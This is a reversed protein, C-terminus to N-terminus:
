EKKTYKSYYLSLNPAMTINNFDNAKNSTEITTNIKNDRYRRHYRKNEISENNDNFDKKQNSYTEINNKDLGNRKHYRGFKVPDNIDNIPENINKEKSIIGNKPKVTANKYSYEYEVIYERNTKGESKSEYKNKKNNKRKYSLQSYKYKKNKGKMMEFFEDFDMEKGGTNSKEILDKIESGGEEDGVERATQYFKPMPIKDDLDSFVDFIIKIGERSEVDSIKLELLEIFEELTIGGKLKIDKNSCLSSVLEYIFPNKEKLNMEEMTKKIESPNIKGNNEVDFMEFGKKMENIEEEQNYKTKSM